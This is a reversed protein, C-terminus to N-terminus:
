LTRIELIHQESGERYEPVSKWLIDSKWKVNYGMETTSFNYTTIVVVPLEDNFM